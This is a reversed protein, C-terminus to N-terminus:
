GKGENWASQWIVALTRSGNAITRITRGGLQEWMHPIRDRGAEANDAEIVELPDILKLTTRMLEVTVHAANAGGRFTKLSGSVKDLIRNVGEVLEAARQDLMKTEYVSHVDAEEPHGPRGHHLHSVHLPQCADGIYHALVGAACVFKTLDKARVFSVMADYIQAVRFPLVGRHSDPVRKLPPEAPMADYFATWAQPTRSAPVKFWLDMLTRGAFTGQGEQDLDAFHNAQDKKRTARWVLDAVDALSVFEPQNNMALNAFAKAGGLSAYVQPFPLKGVQRTDSVGVKRRNGSLVTYVPTGPEGTM